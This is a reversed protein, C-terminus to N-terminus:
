KYGKHKTTSGQQEVIEEEYEDIIAFAFTGGNELAVKDGAYVDKVLAEEAAKEEATMGKRYYYKAVVSVFSWGKSERTITQTESRQAGSFITNGENANMRYKSYIPRTAKDTM